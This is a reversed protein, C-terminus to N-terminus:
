DMLAGGSVGLSQGTIFAADDSALFAASRAIDEPQAIRGLPTMAENQGILEQRYAETTTGEPKLGSAM